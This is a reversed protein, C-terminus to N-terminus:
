SLTGNKGTFVPLNTGLSCQKPQQMKAKIGSGTRAGLCGDLIIAIQHQVEDYNVIVKEKGIFYGSKVKNRDRGFQRFNRDHVFNYPTPVSL